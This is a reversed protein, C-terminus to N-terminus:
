ASPEAWVWVTLTLAGGAPSVETPGIAFTGSQVQQRVFASHANDQKPMASRGVFVARAQADVNVGQNWGTIQAGDPMPGEPSM